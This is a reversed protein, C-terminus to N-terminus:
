VLSRMIPQLWNMDWRMSFGGSAGCLQAANGPDEFAWYGIPSRWSGGEYWFSLDAKKGDDHSLHPLLPLNTFPFSADLVRTRTGPFQAHMHAALADLTDALEPTVYTRNLACFLPSQGRAWTPGNDICPVAVRGMTPAVLRTATWLGTYIVLFAVLFTALGRGRALLAIAWALGGIQSVLTLLLIVLSHWIFRMM